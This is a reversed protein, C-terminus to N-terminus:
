IYAGWRKFKYFGQTLARLGVEDTTATYHIIIFRIRENQSKASYKKTDISYNISTCSSLLLSQLFLIILYKGM